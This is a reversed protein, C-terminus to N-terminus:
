YEKVLPVDRWQGGNIVDEPNAFFQQLIRRAERVNNGNPAKVTVVQEVFRLEGNESM